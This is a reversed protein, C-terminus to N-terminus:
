DSPMGADSSLDEQFCEDFFRAAAHMVFSLHCVFIPGSGFPDIFVNGGEDVTVDQGMPDTNYHMIASPM